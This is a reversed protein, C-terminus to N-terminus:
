DHKQIFAFKYQGITLLHISTKKSYFGGSSLTGYVTYEIIFKMMIKTLFCVFLCIFVCVCYFFYEKIKKPKAVIPIHLEQGCLM